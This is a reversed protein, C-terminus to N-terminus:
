TTKTAADKDLVEQLSKIAKNFGKIMLKKLLANIFFSKKYRVELILTCSNADEKQLKFATTTSPFRRANSSNVESFMPEQVLGPTKATRVTAWM